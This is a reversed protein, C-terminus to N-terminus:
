FPLGAGLYFTEQEDSFGFEAKLVITPTVVIRIGFGYAYHYDEWMQEGVKAYDDYVRGHDWFLVISPYKAKLAGDLISLEWNPAIGQRLEVNLLTYNKDIFRSGYYGRITNSGGFGELRYFPRNGNSLLVKGRVALITDEFFLPMYVRGDLYGSNYTYDSGLAEESRSYGAEFYTGTMPWVVEERGGGLPFRDKRRDLYISVSPTVYTAPDFWDGKYVEPFQESIAILDKNDKSVRSDGPEIYYYALGVRLGLIGASFDPWRYAYTVGASKAIFSWYCEDDNDIDNGVGFYRVGIEQYYGLSFSLRGNPGGVYPEGWNVGYSQYGSETYNVTFDVDRGEKRFLDRFMISFGAGVGTDPGTYVYPAGAFNLERGGEEPEEAAEAQAWAPLAFGLLFATMMLATWTRYRM